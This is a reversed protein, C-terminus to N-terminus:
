SSVGALTGANYPFNGVKPNGSNTQPMSALNLGAWLHAGYLLWGNSTTYTVQVNEGEISSCVTGAPSTQGALLTVCATGQIQVLASEASEVEEIDIDRSSCGSFSFLPALAAAFLLPQHTM